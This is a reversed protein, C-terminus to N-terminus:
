RAGVVLDHSPRSTVATPWCDSDDSPGGAVRISADSCVGFHAGADVALGASAWRCGVLASGRFARQVCTLTPRTTKTLNRVRRVDSSLSSASSASSASGASSASDASSMADVRCDRLSRANGFIATAISFRRSGTSSGDLARRGCSHDDLLGSVGTSRKDGNM